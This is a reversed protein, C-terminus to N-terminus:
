GCRMGDGRASGSPSRGFDVAEKEDRLRWRGRGEVRSGPMSGGGRTSRARRGASAVASTTGGGGVTSLRCSGISGVSGVVTGDVVSGVVSGVVGVM